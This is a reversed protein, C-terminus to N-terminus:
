YKSLGLNSFEESSIVSIWMPYDLVIFKLGFSIFIGGEFIQIEKPWKM